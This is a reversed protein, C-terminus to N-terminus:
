IRGAVLQPARANLGMTVPIPNPALHPPPHARSRRGHEEVRREAVERRTAMAFYGVAIGRFPGTPMKDLRGAIGSSCLGQGRQFEYPPSVFTRLAVSIGGTAEPQQKRSAGQHIIGALPELPM